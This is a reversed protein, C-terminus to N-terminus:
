PVNRFSSPCLNPRAITVLHAAVETGGQQKQSRERSKRGQPRQVPQLRQRLHEKAMQRREQKDTLVMGEVRGQRGAWVVRGGRM